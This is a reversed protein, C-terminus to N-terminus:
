TAMFNKLDVRNIATKISATFAAIIIIAFVNLSGTAFCKANQQKQMQATIPANTASLLIFGHVCGFFGGNNIMM